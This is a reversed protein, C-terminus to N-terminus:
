ETVDIEFDPLYYQHNYTQRPLVSLRKLLMSFISGM